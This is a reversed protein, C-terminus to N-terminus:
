SASSDYLSKLVGNPVSFYFIGLKLFKLKLIQNAQFVRVVSYKSFSALDRNVYSKSHLILFGERSLLSLSRM